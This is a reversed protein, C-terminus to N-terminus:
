VTEVQEKQTPAEQVKEKHQTTPNHMTSLQMRQLIDHVQSLKEM